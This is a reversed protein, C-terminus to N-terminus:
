NPHAKYWEISRVLGEDFHVLPEYGLVQRALSIDALSDRVDGPRPPDCQPKISTGLLANTKNVVDNVSVRRGCGINVAQGALNPAAVSLLNARVINDIFCFDRTQEGDGFITPREGCVLKGVIMPIAAGYQSKPNQGPGFVNFYRLSITRLQHVAAYASVYLEGTYKAVAYPSVPAARFFEHKPQEPADGYAASSSAYIFKPVGAQRAAELLRLTGTADVEHYDLPRAVSEPVSVLAAHHIVADVGQVARAVADADLISAAIREIKNGLDTLRTWGFGGSLNDFARVTYGSTTLGRSVHSAIFGAAGTVLVTPM